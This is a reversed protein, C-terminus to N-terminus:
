TNFISWCPLNTRLYLTRGLQHLLPPCNGIHEQPLTILSTPFEIWFSSICCRNQFHHGAVSAKHCSLKWLSPYMMILLYQRDKLVGEVRSFGRSKIARCRCNGLELELWEVVCGKLYMLRALLLRNDKGDLSICNCIRMGVLLGLRRDIVSVYDHM